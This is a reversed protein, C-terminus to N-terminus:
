GQLFEDSARDTVDIFGFSYERRGHARYRVRGALRVLASGRFLAHVGGARRLLPLRIGREKENAVQM